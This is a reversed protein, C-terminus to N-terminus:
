DDYLPLLFSFLFFFFFLFAVSCNLQFTKRGTFLWTKGKKTSQLAASATVLCSNNVFTWGRESTKGKLVFLLRLIEENSNRLYQFVVMKQFSLSFVTKLSVFLSAKSFLLCFIEFYFDSATQKIKGREFNRNTESKLPQANFDLSVFLFFLHRKRSNSDHEWNQIFHWSM